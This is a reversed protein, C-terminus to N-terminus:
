EITVGNYYHTLIDIYSWGENAAYGLAGLQSMGVGHGYGLTYFTVMDNEVHILMIKCSKLNTSGLISERLRRGTIRSDGVQITQVFGGDTFSANDLDFWTSPDGSVGIGANALKTELANASITYSSEYDDYTSTIAQLYSIDNGWVYSASQTHGGSAAHYSANIVSGNYYMLENMVERVLSVTKAHPTSYSMTPYKGTQKKHYEMYSHCAVAQAKYAEYYALNPATNTGVIERQVAGSLIQLLEEDIETDDPPIIEEESSPEDSSIEESSTEESSIESSAESSIVESSAEQSSVQSSQDSSVPKQPESSAASSINSSIVSSTESSSEQSVMDSSIESSSFDGLGNQFLLDGIGLDIQYFDDDKPKNQALPINNSSAIAAAQQVNAAAYIFTGSFVAVAAVLGILNCILWKVKM